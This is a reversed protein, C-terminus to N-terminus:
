HRGHEHMSKCHPQVCNRVWTRCVITYQLNSFGCLGAPSTSWHTEPSDFEAGDVNDVADQPSGNPQNCWSNLSQLLQNYWSAQLTEDSSTRRAWNFGIYQLEDWLKNSALHSQLTFPYITCQSEGALALLLMLIHQLRLAGQIM